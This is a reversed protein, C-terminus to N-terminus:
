MWSKEAAAQQGAIRGYILSDATGCSGLRVAGHVGGTAEGAAYLGPILHGKVHFVQAKENTYLGGMCHHVKPSMRAVYWPGTGLPRAKANVPRGVPDKKTKVAENMQEITAKLGELPVKHAKALDELTKYEFVCGRELERKLMGPRIEAFMEATGADGIALCERGKQLESFIALSRVKRNALENVFRKGTANEVWVGFMSVHGSWAFGIGFGKEDPSTQPLIQIQDAQIVHAGIDMAMRWAEGTAGPQNTSQLDPTLKPDYIRRFEPDAAFGGYALVVGRKAAVHKVRGSNRDPFRYGERITLGVVRGEGNVILEEVFTRLRPKVGLKELAALEKKVIESGSGNVTFLSRPVSHGGEQKMNKKQYEVGLEKVTWWYTPLAQECLTKVKEPHNLGDGARIMDAAMLEPSDKIGLAIQEPSGPVAFIGGNIISNGGATRMKEFVAVESGAKKAEYAAALGAFGSGVVAVDVTEDWKEPIKDSAFAWAPVGALFAAAGATKLVSRRLLNVTM